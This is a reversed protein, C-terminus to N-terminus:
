RQKFEDFPMRNPFGKRCIRIGELVGNCRLQHLILNSEVLGPKKSENPIICRVFHPTTSYLMTMLKNLQEKHRNSVTQFSGGKGKKGGGKGGAKGGGKGGAIIHISFITM